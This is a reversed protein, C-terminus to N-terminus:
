ATSMPRVGPRVQCFVAWGGAQYSFGFAISGIVGGFFYSTM